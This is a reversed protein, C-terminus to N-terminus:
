KEKHGSSVELYAAVSTLKFDNKFIMFVDFYTGKMEDGKILAEAFNVAESPNSFGPSLKDRLVSAYYLGETYVFDVSCLDTEQEYPNKVVINIYEPKNDSEIELVKLIKVLGDKSYVRFAIVSNYIQGYFKNNEGNHSWLYGDKFSFLTDGMTVMEGPSFKEFGTWGDQGGQTEKFKIVGAGNNLATHYDPMLWQIVMDVVIPTSSIELNISDFEVTASTVGPDSNTVLLGFDYGIDTVTHVSTGPATVTFAIVGDDKYFDIGGSGSFTDASVTVTFEITENPQNTHAYTMMVGGNPGLNCMMSDQTYHYKFKNGDNDPDQQWCLDSSGAHNPDYVKIDVWSVGGGESWESTFTGNPTPTTYKFTTFESINGQYIVTRDNDISDSYYVTVDTAETPNLGVMVRTGAPFLTNKVNEM